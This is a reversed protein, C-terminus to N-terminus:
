TSEDTKKDQSGRAIVIFCQFLWGAVAAAVFSLCAFGLLVAAFSAAARFAIDGRSVGILWGRFLSALSEPRKIFFLPLFWSAVFLLFTLWAWLRRNTKFTRDNMLRYQSWKVHVRLPAGGNACSHFRVTAPRPFVYDIRGASYCFCCYDYIPHAQRRVGTTLRPPPLADLM